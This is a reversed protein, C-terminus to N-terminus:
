SGVIVKVPGDNSEPVPASKLHVKLNGTKFDNLFSSVNDATMSAVDGEYTFKKM